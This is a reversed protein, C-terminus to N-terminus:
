RLAFGRTERLDKRRVTLAAVSFSTVFPALPVPKTVSWQKEVVPVTWGRRTAGADAHEGFEGSGQTSGGVEMSREGGSKWQEM